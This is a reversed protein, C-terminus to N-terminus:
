RRHHRSGRGGWTGSGGSNLVKLPMIKSLWSVGAIGVGNDTEAAAIGAVHSGHRHDDQPNNNNAVFNWGRIDDVYGNGDDDLGNAAIEGPNSWIKNGLDPHYLDVGTDIIAIPRPDGLALTWAEPLGILRLNWQQSWYYPDNPHVEAISYTGNPEHWLAEGREQLISLARRAEGQPTEVVWVGLQPVERLPTLGASLLVQSARAPPLDDRMRVLWETPANQEAAHADAALAPAAGQTPLALALSLAALIVIRVIPQRSM